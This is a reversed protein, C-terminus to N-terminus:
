TSGSCGSPVIVAM